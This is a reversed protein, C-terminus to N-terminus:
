ASGENGSVGAKPILTGFVGAVICRAEVELFGDNMLGAVLVRCTERVEDSSQALVEFDVGEQKDM